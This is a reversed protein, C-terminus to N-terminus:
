WPLERELDKIINRVQSQKPASPIHAIAEQIKLRSLGECHLEWIKKELDNKFHHSHLLESAQCYYDLTIEVELMTVNGLLNKHWSKLPRDPYRFDEADDFGEKIKNYWKSQLKACLRCGNTIVDHGCKLTM